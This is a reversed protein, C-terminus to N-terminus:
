AVGGACLRAPEGADLRLAGCVEDNLEARTLRATM